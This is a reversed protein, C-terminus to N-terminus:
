FQFYLFPSYAQAAVQCLAAVFLLAVCAALAPRPRELLQQSNPALFVLAAGLAFLVLVPLSADVGSLAPASSNGVMAGLHALSGPLDVARFFVWGVLVLAFTPLAGLPGPLRQWFARKGLMRELALWTGHWAGWLVFNWSAGHWLGGLLMTAELNLYTRADGKRNGGLPVYLYDRLWTSLTIHWRRWFETISKSKYPSDFNVPFEFGLMRGLGIAMDSYGSFDFYIQFAYALTGLWAAAAGISGGGASSEFARDALPAFQDALLVKKALGLMFGLAGQAFRELLYRRSELQEALIRYRVIPGAVFEPFLTLFCAFNVLSRQAQVEGRYVDITYSMTKFTYFSIGMPLVISTWAVPEIGLSELLANLNEIGFNAYKFYALLGLQVVISIALYGKRARGSSEAIKQGCWYDVIMSVGLLALFDLRWWAYFLCGFPILLANRARPPVAYYLALVLPLFAFLFIYASFVM